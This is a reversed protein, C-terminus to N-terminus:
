LKEGAGISANRNEARMAEVTEAAKEFLFQTENGTSIFTMGREKWFRALAVSRMHIGSAVGHNRCSEVVKEIAEVLKPNEFEGPIGLSISLDAPGVMVADIGPVSLLEERRDVAAKTEIQFTAMTNVNLHELIQPITLPEYELHSGTLGYGRVGVPPFFMWSVARALVEPSEIRPLLIGMAGCDLARAILNYQVDAVRVIPALGAGIAARCLDQLTELDFGGHESDLYTWNFGAKGLITAAEPSRLQAFSCGVQLKGEKLAKKVRNIHM